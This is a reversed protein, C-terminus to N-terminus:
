DSASSRVIQGHQSWSRRDDYWLRINKSTGKLTEIGRMQNKEVGAALVKDAVFWLCDPDIKALAELAAKVAQIQAITFQDSETHAKPPSAAFVTVPVNPVHKASKTYQAVVAVPQIKAAIKKEAARLTSEPPQFLEIPFENSGRWYLGTYKPAPPKPLPTGFLKNSAIQAETPPVDPVRYDELNMTLKLGGDAYLSKDFRIREDSKAKHATLWGHYVPIPLTQLFMGPRAEPIPSDGLVYTKWAHATRMAPQAAQPNQLHPHNKIFAELRTAAESSLHKDFLKFAERWLDLM